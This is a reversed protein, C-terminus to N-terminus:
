RASAYTKVKFQEDLFVQEYVYLSRDHNFNLVRTWLCLQLSMCVNSVCVCVCLSVHARM